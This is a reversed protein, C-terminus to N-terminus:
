PNRPQTTASRKLTELCQAAAKGSRTNPHNEVIDEYVKIAQSLDTRELQIAQDLMIEAERRPNPTQDMKVVIQYAWTACIIRSILLVWLTSAKLCYLVLQAIIMVVMPWWAWLYILGLPGFIFALIVAITKSKRRAAIEAPSPGNGLWQGCGSCNQIKEPNKRGCYNCAESFTQEMDEFDFSPDTM